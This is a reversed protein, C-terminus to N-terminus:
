AVLSAPHCRSRTVISASPRRTSARISDGSPTAATRDCRVTVATSRGTTRRDTAEQDPGRPAVSSPAPHDSTVASLSQSASDRQRDRCNRSPSNGSMAAVNVPCVGRPSTESTDVPVNDLPRWAGTAAAAPGPAHQSHCTSCLPAHRISTRSSAPSKATARLPGVSRSWAHVSGRATPSDNVVTGTVSASAASRSPAAAAM